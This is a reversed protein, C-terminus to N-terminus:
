AALCAGRPSESAPPSVGAARRPRKRPPPIVARNAGETLKEHFWTRVMESEQAGSMRNIKDRRQDAMGEYISTFSAVLQPLYQLPPDRTPKSRAITEQSTLHELETSVLASFLRQIKTTIVPLPVRTEIEEPCHEGSYTEVGLIVRWSVNSGTLPMSIVGTGAETTERRRVLRAGIGAWDISRVADALLSVSTSIPMGNIFRHLIVTGDHAATDVDAEIMVSLAVRSEYGSVDLHCVGSMSHLDPPGQSSKFTTTGEWHLQIELAATNFGPCRTFNELWKKCRFLATSTDAPWLLGDVQARTGSFECHKAIQRAGLLTAEDNEGLAVEYQSLFKDEARTSTLTLRGCECAERYADLVDALETSCMGRSNDACTLRLGGM